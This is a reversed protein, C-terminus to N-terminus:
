VIRRRLLIAGALALLGMLVVVGRAGLTPVAREQVGNGSLTVTFPEDNLTFSSTASAPGVTTPSFDFFFQCTGGPPLTQHQCNQVANFPAYVAGGAGNVYVSSSSINTVTVILEKTTGVQVNGFDLSAPEVSFTSGQYAHAMGALPGGFLVVGCIALMTWRFIFQISRLAKM